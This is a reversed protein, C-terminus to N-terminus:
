TEVCLLIVKMVNYFSFRYCDEVVCKYKNMNQQYTIAYFFFFSM